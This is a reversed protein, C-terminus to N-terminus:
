VFLGNLNLVLMNLFLELNPIVSAEKIEKPILNSIPQSKAPGMLVDLFARKDLSKFVREKKHEM